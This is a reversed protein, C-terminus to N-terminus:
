VALDVDSRRHFREPHALSGFVTVQVAKFRQHLLAAAERAVDWGRKLRRRRHHEAVFRRRRATERYREMQAPSITGTGNKGEVKRAVCITM